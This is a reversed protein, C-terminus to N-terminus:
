AADVVLGVPKTNGDLDLSCSSTLRGEVSLVSDVGLLIFRALVTLTSLPRPTSSGSFASSDGVEGVAGSLSSVPAVLTKLPRALARFKKPWRGGLSSMVFWRVSYKGKVSFFTSSRVARCLMSLAFPLMPRRSLVMEKLGREEERKLTLM